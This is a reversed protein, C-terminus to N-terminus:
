SARPSREPNTAPRSIRPRRRRAIRRVAPPERVTQMPERDQAARPGLRAARAVRARLRNADPERPRAQPGRADLGPPVALALLGRRSGPVPRARRARADPDARRRARPRRSTKPRTLPVTRGRRIAHDIRPDTQTTVRWAVVTAQGVGAEASEVGPHCVQRTDGWGAGASRCKGSMSHNARCPRSSGHRAGLVPGHAIRTQSTM